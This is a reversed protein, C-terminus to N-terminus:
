WGLVAARSSYPEAEADTLVKGSANHGTVPKGSADVSGWERWGSTATPAAPNPAPSTYWGGSAIVPEMTCGIFVVNDYYEASGGSRALYMSGDRVGSEAALVKVQDTVDHFSVARHNSELKFSRKFVM